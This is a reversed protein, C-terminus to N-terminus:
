FMRILKIIVSVGFILGSAFTFIFLIYTAFINNHTPNHKDEFLFDLLTLILVVFIIFSYFLCNNLALDNINM